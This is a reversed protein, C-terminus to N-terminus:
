INWHTQYVEIPITLICKRDSNQQCFNIKSSPIDNEMNVSKCPYQGPNVFITTPVKLFFATVKSHFYSSGQFKPM